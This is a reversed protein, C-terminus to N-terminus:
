SLLLKAEDESIGLKELLASKAAIKAEAEAEIEAQVIPWLDDLQKKTPKPTDALWVLGEYDDGNLICHSDKYKRSLILTYKNM